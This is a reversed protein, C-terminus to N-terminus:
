HERYRQERFVITARQRPRETFGPELKGAHRFSFWGVKPGLDVFSTDLANRERVEVRKRQLLTHASDHCIVRCPVWESRLSHMGATRGRSLSSPSFISVCTSHNEAVTHAQMQPFLPARQHGKVLGTASKKADYSVNCGMSDPFKPELIRIPDFSPPCRCGTKSAPHGLFVLLTLHRLARM